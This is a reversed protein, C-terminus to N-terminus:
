IIVFVGVCVIVLVVRCPVILASRLGAFLLRPFPLAAAAAVVVSLTSIVGGGGVGGGGVGGIGVGSGIARVGTDVGELSVKETLKCIIMIMM